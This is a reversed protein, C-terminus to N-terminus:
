TNAKKELVALLEDANVQQGVMVRLIKVQSDFPTILPIQTKMAELVMVVDGKQVQDGVSVKVAVVVGPITSRLEGSGEAAEVGAKPVPSVV